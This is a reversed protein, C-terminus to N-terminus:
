SPENKKERAYLHPCSRVEYLPEGDECQLPYKLGLVNCLCLLTHESPRTYGNEYKCVMSRSLKAKECLKEQTYNNKLRAKRIITPVDIKSM